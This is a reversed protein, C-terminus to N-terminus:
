KNELLWTQFDTLVKFQEEKQSRNLFNELIESTLIPLALSNESLLYEGTESLLFIRMIETDYLWFEKIGFAAYIEFKDESKNSEDIEVVIDPLTDTEDDFLEKKFSALHANQVYYSEDPEAGKRAKKSILSMSGAPIVNVKMFLSAVVILSNLFRSINEHKFGQGMIKLIGRNYSIHLNTKDLTKESLKLYDDWTIGYFVRTETPLVDAILDAINSSIVPKMIRNVLKASNLELNKM